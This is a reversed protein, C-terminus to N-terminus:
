NLSPDTPFSAVLSLPHPQRRLVAAWLHDPDPSFPDEAAAEVVFWAGEDIEGELQGSSWGAYGAFVRM